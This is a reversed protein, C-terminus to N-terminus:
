VTSVNWYQDPHTLQQWLVLPAGNATSADAVGVVYDHGALAAGYNQIYYGHPAPVFDWFQNYPDGACSWATIRAGQSTSGGAVGLCKGNGNIVQVWNTAITLGTHWLQDPNNTCNWQGAYPQHAAIGICRPPEHPNLNVLDSPGFTLQRPPTHVTAASATATMLGLPLCAVIMAKGALLLISKRM